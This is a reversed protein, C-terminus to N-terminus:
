VMSRINLFGTTTKMILGHYGHFGAAFLPFIVALTLGVSLWTRGAPWAVGISDLLHGRRWVAWAPLYIFAAAVFAASYEGFAPWLLPLYSFVALALFAGSVVGAIEGFVATNVFRKGVKDTDLSHM